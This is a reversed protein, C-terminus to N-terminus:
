ESVTWEHCNDNTINYYEYLGYKVPIVFKDITRKWRKTSGNRRVRLPSKDKNKLTTSEFNQATMCNKININM